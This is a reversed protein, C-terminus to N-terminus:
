ASSDPVSMGRSASRPRASSVRVQEGSPTSEVMVPPRPAFWLTHALWAIVGAEVAVIMVLAALVSNSLSRRAAPQPRSETATRAQALATRQELEPLRHKGALAEREFAEREYASIGSSQQPRTQPLPPPPVAVSSSTFM